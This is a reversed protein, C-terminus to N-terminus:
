QLNLMAKWYYQFMDPLIFVASVTYYSTFHVSGNDSQGNDDLSFDDQAYRFKEPGCAIFVDDEGFFDQLCTVQSASLCFLQAGSYDPMMVLTQLWAMLETLSYPSVATTQALVM